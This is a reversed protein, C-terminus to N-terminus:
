SKIIGKIDLYRDSFELVEFGSLNFSNIYQEVEKISFAAKLSAKFDRELVSPANLLHKKQLAILEALSFPRRLDRHFHITGKKSINGLAKFFLSPDHIHHLLSNSVVLDACKAFNSENMALSSINMKLYSLKRFLPSKNINKRKGAIKLMEYSDDIGIVRAKPWSCALKESINGPGCGLDIILSRQDISKTTKKLFEKISLILNDESSSFDAESYAKVQESDIMLEPEISRKM